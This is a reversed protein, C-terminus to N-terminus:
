QELIEHQRWCKCQEIRQGEDGQQDDYAFQMLLICPFGPCQGCHKFEKSECCTKVSCGEGWFPSLINVCGECNVQTKYECQSCLIGCRSEIM